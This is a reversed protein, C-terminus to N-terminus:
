VKGSEGKAKKFFDELYQKQGRSLDSECRQIIEEFDTGSGPNTLAIDVDDPLEQTAKKVKCKFSYPEFAEIDIRQKATLPHSFQVVSNTLLEPNEMVEDFTKTLLPIASEVPITDIEFSGDSNLMVDCFVRKDEEGFKLDFPAGTYFAKPNGKLFQHRHYDGGICVDFGETIDSTISVGSNAEFGNDLLANRSPLHFAMIQHGDMKKAKESMEKIDAEIGKYDSRYPVCWVCFDEYEVLEQHISVKVHDAVVLGFAGMVTYLNDKREICHNGELILVPGHDEESLLRMFYALANLTAVDLVSYETLDGAIVTLDYDGSRYLGVFQEIAEKQARLLDSAGDEGLPFASHKSRLHWDASALIRV